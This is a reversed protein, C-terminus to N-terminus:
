SAGPHLEGAACPLRVTFTAGRGNGESEVGVAGGHLEVIHKVIALGLGLGGHARTSGGDARRFREFVFPLFSADIDRGTDSVVVELAAELRIRKAEAAPRVSELAAGAGTSADSGAAFRARAMGIRGVPADAIGLAGARGRGNAQV